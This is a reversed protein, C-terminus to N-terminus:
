INKCERGKIQLMEDAGKQFEYETKIIEAKYGLSELERMIEDVYPSRENKLTLIPFIRVEKAVRLMELIAKLHFEYDLHESYLFLFHSSLALDFRRDEFSLEPLMQLQYRGQEKGEEYDDLFARMAGMRTAYLHDVDRINKWVFGEQNKRVQSIVEDAIEDIRQRLEEKGFAYTPDISIVDGGLRRAEMNFSAPGDGCGLIKQQLDQKTLLFMARYEGLTRGWPVISQLTYEIKM